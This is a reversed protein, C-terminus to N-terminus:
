LEGTEVVRRVAATADAVYRYLAFSHSVEYAETDILTDNGSLHQFIDGSDNVIYCKVADGATVTANVYM